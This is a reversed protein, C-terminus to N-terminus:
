FFKHSFFTNECLRRAGVVKFREEMFLSKKKGCSEKTGGDSWYGRGTGGGGETGRGGRASGDHYDNYKKLLKVVTKVDNRKIASHLTQVRCEGRRGM